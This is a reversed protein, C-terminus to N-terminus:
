SRDCTKSRGQRKNKIVFYWWGPLLCIRRPQTVAIEDNLVTIKYLGFTRFLHVSSRSCISNITIIM